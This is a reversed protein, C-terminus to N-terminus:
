PGRDTVVTHPVGFRCLVQDHFFKWTDDAILNKSPKAEIWKTFYDVAVIVHNVQGPGTPLPGILDMGWMDFPWTPSIVTQEIALARPTYCGLESVM